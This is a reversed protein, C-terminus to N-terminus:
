HIGSHATVRRHHSIRSILIAWNSLCNLPSFILVKSCRTCSIWRPCIFFISIWQWTADYSFSWEVDGNHERLILHSSTAWKRAWTHAMLFLLARRLHTSYIQEYILNLILFTHSLSDEFSKVFDVRREDDDNSTTIICYAWVMGRWSRVLSRCVGSSYSACSWSSSPPSNSTIIAFLTILHFSLFIEDQFIYILHICQLLFSVVM